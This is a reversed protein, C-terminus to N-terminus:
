YYFVYILIYFRNPTLVLSMLAVDISTRRTEKNNRKLM